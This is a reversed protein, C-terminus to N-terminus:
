IPFFFFTFKKKLVNKKLRKKLLGKFSDSGVKAGVNLKRDLADEKQINKRKKSTLTRRYELSDKASLMKDDGRYRATFEIEEFKTNLIVM